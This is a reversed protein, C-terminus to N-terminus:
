QLNNLIDNLEDGNIEHSDEGQIFLNPKNNNFKFYCCGKCRDIGHKRQSLCGLCGGHFIINPNNGIFVNTNPLHKKYMRMENANCWIKFSIYDDDSISKGASYDSNVNRSVWIAEFLKEENDNFMEM